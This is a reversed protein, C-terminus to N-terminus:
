NLRFIYGLRVDGIGLWFGIFTDSYNASCCLLLKAALYSKYVLFRAPHISSHALDVVVESCDSTSDQKIWQAFGHYRTRNLYVVQYTDM